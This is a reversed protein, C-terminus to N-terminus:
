EAKSLRKATVQDRHQQFRADTVHGFKGLHKRYAADTGCLADWWLFFTGYNGVVHSHHFDHHGSSGSFPILRFPSWPVDYGSHSDLTEGIRVLAWVVWVIAHCGFLIPGATFPIANGIIFELWHAYEASIGIVADQYEHHQKHVYKYIRPHHLTRHSWYFITDEIAMFAVIQLAVKWASPFEQVGHSYGMAVAADYTFYGLPLGLVFQNFLVQLVTKRMLEGWKAKRQV